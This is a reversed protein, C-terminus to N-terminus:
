DFVFVTLTAEETGVSSEGPEEFQWYERASVIVNDSQCPRHSVYTSTTIGSLKQFWRQFVM